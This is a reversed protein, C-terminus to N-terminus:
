RIAAQDVNIIPTIKKMVGMMGPIGKSINDADRNANTQYTRKSEVQGM